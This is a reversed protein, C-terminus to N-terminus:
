EILTNKQRETLFNNKELLEVTKERAQVINMGVLEKPALDTMKGLNNIVVPYDRDYRMKEGKPLSEERILWDNHDHAPTIKM